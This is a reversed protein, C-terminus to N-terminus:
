SVPHRQSACFSPWITVAETQTHTRSLRFIRMRVGQPIALFVEKKPPSIDFNQASGCSELAPQGLSQAVWPIGVLQLLSIHLYLPESAIKTMSSAQQHGTSLASKMSFGVAFSPLSPSTKLTCSTRMRPLSTWGIVACRKGASSSPTIHTFSVHIFSGSIQKWCALSLERSTGEGANEWPAAGLWDILSSFFCARRTTYQYISGVHAIQGGVQASPGWKVACGHPM